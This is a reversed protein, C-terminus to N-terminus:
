ASVEGRAQAIAAPDPMAPAKRERKCTPATPANASGTWRPVYRIHM